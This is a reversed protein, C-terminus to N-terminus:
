EGDAKAAKPAKGYRKFAGDRYVFLTTTLPHPSKEAQEKAIKRLAAVGKRSRSGTILILDKAVAAVVIDGEVKSKLQDGTWVEDFLLLSADYDGGASIALLPTPPMQTLEIKSIIRRLNKMALTRLQDRDLGLAKEQGSLVFGIRGPENIAYVAVLDEALPEILPAVKLKARTQEVWARNKIIFVLTDRTLKPCTSCSSATQADAVPAFALLALIAIISRM